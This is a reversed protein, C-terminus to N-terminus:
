DGLPKFKGGEEVDVPHGGLTEPIQGELDQLPVSIYIRICPEGSALEGVAVAEVGEIAILRPAHKDVVTMIDQKPMVDGGERDATCGAVVLALLALATLRVTERFHMTTGKM